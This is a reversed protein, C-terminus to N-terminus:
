FPPQPSQECNPCIDANWGCLTSCNGCCFLAEDTKSYTHIKDDAITRGDASDSNQKNAESAFPRNTKYTTERDDVKPKDDAKDDAGLGDYNDGTTENASPASSAPSQNGNNELLTFNIQRTRSKGEKSRAVKWGLSVLNPEIRKIYASLKNAKKPFEKSNKAREGAVSELATLLENATGHWQKSAQGDLFKLLTEGIPSNEIAIENADDRNATYRDLFDQGFGAYAFKAFDAMRPLQDLKVNPLERLSESLKDLLAGFLRPKAENFKANFTEEDQRRAADITPLNLILCRELLDSRTALEAIGNLIIPRKADFIIEDGDTYLERTALGGGTAVRCLSDSFDHTVTSLNDFSLVWSNQAAIMLDREDRPKSRLASANPDILDRQIKTLTSKASGQGGHIALVPFAYGPRIAAVMWACLLVFDDDNINVFKKLEDLGNHKKVPMPLPLLGRTRRFRVPVDKSEVIEWGDRTVKVAQWTENGLDVFIAGDKEAYRIHTEECKCEFLAKGQLVNLADQISQSNAAKKSKEWLKRSLLLRFDKSRLKLIELHSDVPVVAFADRNATHFFTLDEALAVLQKAITPRKEDGDEETDPNQNESVVQQSHLDIEVWKCVTKVLKDDTLEALTPLGFVNENNKIKHATAEVAKLRDATEEDNTAFCIAMIFNKTEDLSFGNRLLGGSVALTLDQRIGEHWFTSILCASALQAVARRLDKAKIELPEGESDWEVTEGSEHTSPPFVTQKGEGTRIELICAQKGENEDKSSILIPNNFKEFKADKCIYLRHSRPKSARGFQAKTQPLFYDAIKVAEPSDLDIDTLGNSTAGLLVGINQPKGNFHNALDSENLKLNPWGPLKPNKSKHAIPIPQWGRQLYDKAIELITITNNTQKM